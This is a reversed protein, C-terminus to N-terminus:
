KFQLFKHSDAGKCIWSATIKSTGIKEMMESISLGEPFESMDIEEPTGNDARFWKKDLEANCEFCKM